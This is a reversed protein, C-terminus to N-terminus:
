EAAEPQRVVLLPSCLMAADPCPLGRILPPTAPPSPRSPRGRPLSAAGTPVTIAGVPAALRTRRSDVGREPVKRLGDLRVTCRVDVGVTHLPGRFMRRGDVRVTRVGSRRSRDCLLLYGGLPVPDKVPAAGVAGAASVTMPGDALGVYGSSYLSRCITEPCVTPGGAKRLRVAIGAPSYGARM